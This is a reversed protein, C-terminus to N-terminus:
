ISTAELTLSRSSAFSVTRLLSSATNQTSPESEWTACWVKGGEDLRVIVHLTDKAVAQRHGRDDLDVHLDRWLIAVHGDEADIISM